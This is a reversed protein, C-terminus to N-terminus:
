RKSEFTTVAPTHGASPEARMFQFEEEHLTGDKGKIALFATIHDSGDARYTLGDFNVIGRGLSVLKFLTFKEKDEWGNLESNFHKVRMRLTGQEEVITVLEYFVPKDDKLLRYAGLMSGGGPQGWIEESMGGLSPGTWRGSLWGVDAIKAPPSSQGPRLSLTHATLPDQALMRGPILVAIFVSALWVKRKM